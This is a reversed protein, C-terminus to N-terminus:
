GDSLRGWIQRTVTTGDHWLAQPVTAEQDFGAKALLETPPQVVPTVWGRLGRLGLVGLAHVVALDLVALTADGSAQQLGIELRARRAVWDIECFRVFATDAVVCLREDARDGPAPVSIPEALAPWGALPEALLEGALWRGCLLARDGSRYGRLKMTTV